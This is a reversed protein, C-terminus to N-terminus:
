QIMLRTNGILNGKDDQIQVLYLGKAYGSFDKSGNNALRGSELLQGSLDTLRYNGEEAGSWRFNFQGSSPNPFVKVGVDNTIIKDTVGLPDFPCSEFVPRIMWTGDFQTQFWNGTNNYYQHQRFNTNRDLGINLPETTSQEIGVFYNGSLIVTADDIAFDAFGGQTQTYVPNYTNSRRYLETGPKGNAAEAWIVITFSLPRADVVVPNFYLRLARITDARLNTFRTAMQSYASLIGYAAEATGDDYAFCDGFIQTYILTDNARNTELAVNRITQIVSIKSCITSEPLSFSNGLLPNLIQNCLNCQNVGPGSFDVNGVSLTNYVTGGYDNVLFSFDVNVTGSTNNKIKNEIFDPLTSSSYQNFPVQAFNAFLSRGPNMWTIDSIVTDFGLDLRIYDVNWHDLSGNLSAYNKFRFKFNNKLFLTDAIPIVVRKFSSDAPIAEGIRSWVRTWETDPGKFELVLSDEPEPQNGRGQAQYFFSFTVGDSPEYNLNFPVSTLYDAVGFNNTSAFNYPMGLSDLGDFTIANYSPPNVPFNGNIWAKSDVWHAKGAAVNVHYVTDFELYLTSDPLVLSSDTKNGANDFTYRFYGPWADFTNTPTQPTLKSGYLRITVKPLPFSDVTQNPVDYVYGYSTDNMYSYFTYLLNDVTFSAYEFDTIDAAAYHSTDYDPYRKKVFDDYFPINLPQFIFYVDDYLLKDQVGGQRQQIPYANIPFIHEQAFSSGWQLWLFFCLWFSNRM